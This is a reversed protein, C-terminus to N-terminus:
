VPPQDPAPGPAQPTPSAIPAARREKGRGPRMVGATPQVLKWLREKAATLKLFREEDEDDLANNILKDVGDIQRLTTAKRTEDDNPRQTLRELEQTKALLDKERQRLLKRSIGSQIGARSGSESTFNPAKTAPNSM